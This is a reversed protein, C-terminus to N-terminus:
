EKSLKVYCIQPINVRRGVTRGLDISREKRDLQTDWKVKLGKIGDIRTHTAKWQFM